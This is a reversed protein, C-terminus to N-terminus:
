ILSEFESLWVEFCTIAASSCVTYMLTLFNVNLGWMKVLCPRIPNFRARILNPRWFNVKTLQHFMVDRLGSARGTLWGIADCSPFIPLLFQVGFVLTSCDVSM